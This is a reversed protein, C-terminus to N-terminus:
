GNKIGERICPKKWLFYQYIYIYLNLINIYILYAFSQSIKQKLLKLSKRFKCSNKEWFFSADRKTNPEWEFFFGWLITNPLFFILKM